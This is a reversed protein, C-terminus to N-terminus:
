LVEGTVVNWWPFGLCVFLGNGCCDCACMILVLSRNKCVLVISRFLHDACTDFM